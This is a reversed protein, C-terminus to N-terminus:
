GKNEAKEAVFQGIENCHEKGPLSLLPFGVPCGHRLLSSSSKSRIARGNAM